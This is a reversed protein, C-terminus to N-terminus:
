KGGCRSCFPIGGAEEVSVKMIWRNLSSCNGTSHYRDGSNTIYVKRLAGSGKMCRECPKYKSGDSNRLEPLSGSFVSHVSLRLYTCDRRQHCVTGNQTIYVYEHAVADEEAGKILDQGTWLRRRCRQIYFGSLSGFLKVQPGAEFVAAMDIFESEGNQDQVLCLGMNGMSFGKGEESLEEKVSNELMFMGSHNDTWLVAAERVNRELAFQLEIQFEMLYFFYFLVNVAVLFFSMLVAAEITMSGKAEAHSASASARKWVNIFPSCCNLNSKSGTKNQAQLPKKQIKNFPNISFPM